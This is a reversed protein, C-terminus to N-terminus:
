VLPLETVRLKACGYPILTLEKEEGIRERSLPAPAAVTDFGVTYGWLILAGKAKLVM